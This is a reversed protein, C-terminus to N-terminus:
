KEIHKEIIEDIREIDLDSVGIFERQPINRAPDGEQHVAGYDVSTGIVVRKDDSIYEISRQLRGTVVLVRPTLRGQAKLREAYRKSRPKWDKGEPDVGRNFRLKTSAELATKIEALPERLDKLQKLKSQLLKLDKNNLKVKIM